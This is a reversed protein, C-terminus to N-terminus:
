KITIKDGTKLKLKKFASQNRMSIELTNSSGLILFLTNNPAEAYTKYFNLKESNVEYSEKNLTELNTIINGFKDIRVVEGTRDKLYFDLKQIDRIEKGLDEPKLGKELKGAIVAFVDRGHFTNSINNETKIKFIRKILDKDAAPYMLGNDPGIFYYNETEVIIPKRLSGVGPDVVCLFISGKPFFKYNQLLIWAGEKISHSNVDNFLDVIKADEYISYIVGKMVGLYESTNFDSLLVIM